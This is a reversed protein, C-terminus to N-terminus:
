KAEISYPTNEGGDGTLGINVKSLNIEVVPRVAFSTSNINIDYSDYLWDADVTGGSVYFMRFDAWDIDFLVCRSALWASTSSSFLDVYTQNDMTSTSMTFGYYTYKGKFSRSGSATGTVYSDQDSLGYKSGYTGYPAGTKEDAFIKPYYTSVPDYEKGYKSYSNKNYTMYEEIDDINLSRGTAGLSSNSYM